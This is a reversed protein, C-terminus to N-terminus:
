RGEGRLLSDKGGEGDNGHGSVPGWGQSPGSVKDCIRPPPLPTSPGLPPLGRLALVDRGGWRGGGGNGM